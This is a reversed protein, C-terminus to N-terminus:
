ALAAQSSVKNDYIRNEDMTRRFFVWVLAAVNFAALITMGIWFGKAWAPRLPNCGQPKVPICGSVWCRRLRHGMSDRPEKGQYELDKLELM